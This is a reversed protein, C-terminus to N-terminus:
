DDVKVVDLISVTLVDLTNNDTDFFEVEVVKSDYVMVITGFTGLPVNENLEKASKVIDYEKLM